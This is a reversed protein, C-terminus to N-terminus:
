NTLRVKGDSWVTSGENAEIKNEIMADLGQQGSSLQNQRWINPKTIKAHMRDHAEFEAYKEEWVDSNRSRRSLHPSIEVRRSNAQWTRQQTSEILIEERRREVQM